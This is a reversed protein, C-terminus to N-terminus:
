SRQKPKFDVAGRKSLQETCMREFQFKYWLQKCKVYGVPQAFIRVSIRIVFSM